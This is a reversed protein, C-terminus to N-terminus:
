SKVAKHLILQVQVFTSDTLSAVTANSMDLALHFGRQSLNTYATIPTNTIIPLSFLIAQEVVCVPVRWM